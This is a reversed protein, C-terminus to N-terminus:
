EGEGRRSRSVNQGCDPLQLYTRKAKEEDNTSRLMVGFDMSTGRGIRKEDNVDRRSESVQITIQNAGIIKDSKENFYQKYNQHCPLRSGEWGVMNKGRM